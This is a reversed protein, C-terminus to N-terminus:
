IFDRTPSEDKIGDAFKHILEVAQKVKDPSGQLGMYSAYDKEDQRGGITSYKGTIPDNGTIIHIGPGAWVWKGYEGKPPNGTEVGKDDLFRGPKVPIGLGQLVKQFGGPKFSTLDFGYEAEALIRLGVVHESILSSLRVM